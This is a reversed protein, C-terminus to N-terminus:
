VRQGWPHQAIRTEGVRRLDEPLREGLAAVMADAFASADPFRHRPDKALGIALVRDVDRPLDQLQSPQTPMKSAVEYMTTPVDKGTFPPHGTLCRYAIAALSFTDARKDVDEGKAQEPSMYGPTGVVRGATLTGGHGAVKSVGFDLVKWTPTEGEALFLNSPKLDRHVVGAAHAEGLAAAVQRVLSIVDDPRLRRVRRLEGALDTGRLREMAIFPIEGATTGVELVAAVHPSRLKAAVTAERTFRGLAAADGLASPHLLKVAAARGDHVNQAEYVEGMGGRGLLNGLRYSGVVQETYRGPGGIRLQRDLEQRAEALLAERVSVQRVAQELRAVAEITVRRSRRGFVLAAAYLMQIVLQSIIQDRVVFSTSKVLGLEPIAGSTILLALLLHGGAGLAYLGYVALANEGLSFFYIGFIMVAAAPSAVGWYNVGALIALFGPVAAVAVLTHSFRKPDRLVHILAGVSVFMSGLAGFALAKATPEGGAIALAVSVGAAVVLAMKAFARTRAVEDDHMAERPTTSTSSRDVTGAARGATSGATAPPVSAAPRRRAAPAAALTATETPENELEDVAEPV